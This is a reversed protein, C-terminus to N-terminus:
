RSVEQVFHSRDATGTLTPQRSRFPHGPSAPFSTHGNVRGGRGGTPALAANMCPQANVRGAKM